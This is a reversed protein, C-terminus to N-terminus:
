PSVQSARWYELSRHPPRIWHHLSPASPVSALCVSQSVVRRPDRLRQVCRSCLVPQGQSWMRKEFFNIHFVAESSVTKRQLLPFASKTDSLFLKPERLEPNREQSVICPMSLLWRARKMVSQPFQHLFISAGRSSSSSHTIFEKTELGSTEHRLM